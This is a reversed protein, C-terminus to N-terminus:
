SPLLALTSLRPTFRPPPPLQDWVSGRRRHTVKRAHLTVLPGRLPARRAERDERGRCLSGEQRADVFKTVTGMKKATRYILALQTNKQRFRGLCHAPRLAGCRRSSKPGKVRPATRATPPSGARDRDGRQSTKRQSWSLDNNRVRPNQHFGKSQSIGDMQITIIKVNM